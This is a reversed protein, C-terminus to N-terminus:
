DTNEQDRPALIEEDIGPLTPLDSRSELARLAKDEAFQRMVHDCNSTIANAKPLQWSKEVVNKFTVERVNTVMANFPHM